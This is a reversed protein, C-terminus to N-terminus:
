LECNMNLFHLDRMKVNNFLLWIVIKNIGFFFMVSDFNQVFWQALEEVIKLRPNDDYYKKVNLQYFFKKGFEYTSIM